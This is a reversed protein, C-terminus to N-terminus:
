GADSSGALQRATEAALRNTSCVVVDLVRLAEEQATLGQPDDDTGVVHAVVHLTRGARRARSQAEQIAPAADGVPDPHACLGLVFDLLLVGVEPADGATAIGATRLEPAIMPHPRGRTYQSAGFDVFTEAATM